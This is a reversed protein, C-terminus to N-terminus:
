CIINLTKEFQIDSEYAWTRIYFGVSAGTEFLAASFILTHPNGSRGKFDKRALTRSLMRTLYAM